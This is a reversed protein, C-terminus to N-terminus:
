PEFYTMALPLSRKIILHSWARISIQVKQCPLLNAGLVNTPIMCITSFPTTLQTSQNEVLNCFSTPVMWFLAFITDDSSMLDQVHHPACCLGDGM